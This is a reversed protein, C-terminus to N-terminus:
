LEQWYIVCWQFQILSVLHKLGETGVWCDSALVFSHTFVFHSGFYSMTEKLSNSKLPM